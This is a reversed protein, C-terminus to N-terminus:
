TQLIIVGRFRDKAGALFALEDPFRFQELRDVTATHHSVGAVAIPATLLDEM